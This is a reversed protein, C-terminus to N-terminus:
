LLIIQKILTNEGSILRSGTAGNKITLESVIAHAKEFIKISKAQGLYDNSYFDVGDHVTLERLSNNQKREQLKLAIHTPLGM